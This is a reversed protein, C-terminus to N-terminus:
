QGSRCDENGPASGRPVWFELVSGVIAGNRALLEGGMGEIITRCIQLGMGVGKPKTTFFPEFLRPLDENPIGPGSDTVGIRYGGDHEALNVWIKRRHNPMRQVAEIANTVLHVFVQRLDAADAQLLCPENPRSVELIVGSDQIERFLLEPIEAVAMGMDVPAVCREQSMVRDRTRHIISTLRECQRTLRAIRAQITGSRDDLRAASRGLAELELRMSTIPQDLEHAISISLAGMTAARSAQALESQVSLQQRAAAQQDTIDVFTAYCTDDESINIAFAVARIEGTLTALEVVGDLADKGDIVADLVIRLPNSSELRNLLERPGMLCADVDEFGLMLALARNVEITKAQAILNPVIAPHTCLFQRRETAKMRQLDDLDPRLSGVDFELVGINRDHFLSRFRWRMRTLLETDEDVRLNLDRNMEAISRHARFEGDVDVLGGVWHTISGSRPSLVPRGVSHMWRYTGDRLRMRFYSRSECAGARADRWLAELSALDEPHVVDKWQDGSVVDGTDVGTLESFAESLFRMKGDAGAIWHIQPVSGELWDFEDASARRQQPM